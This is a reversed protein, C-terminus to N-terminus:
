GRKKARITVYNESELNKPIDFEYVEKDIIIHVEDPGYKGLNLLSPGDCLTVKTPKIDEKLDIGLLNANFYTNYDDECDKAYQEAKQKELAAEIMRTKAQLLKIMRNKDSEPDRSVVLVDYEAMNIVGM